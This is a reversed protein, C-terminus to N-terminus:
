YGLRASYPRLAVMKKGYLRTKSDGVIVLTDVKIDDLELWELTTVVMEESPTAAGTLLGVPTAAGRLARARDMIIKIRRQGLKGLPNYIVLILDAELAKEARNLIAAWRSARDALSIVAFDGGLPSGLRAAAYDALTMGPIIEVEVKLRRRRLYALLTSAIAYIGPHGISLIGVQHGETARATALASREVPSLASTIVEKSALYTYVLRTAEPQGIVIRSVAIASLAQPTICEPHGPGLGILWIKGNM